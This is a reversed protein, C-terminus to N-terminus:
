VKIKENSGVALRAGNLKFNWEIPTMRLRKVVKAVVYGKYLANRAILSKPCIASAAARDVIKKPASPRKQIPVDLFGCAKGVGFHNHRAFVIGSVKPYIDAVGSQHFFGRSIEGDLDLRLHPSSAAPSEYTYKHVMMQRSEPGHARYRVVTM